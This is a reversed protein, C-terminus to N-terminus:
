VEMEYAQQLLSKAGDGTEFTPYDVGQVYMFNGITANFGTPVNYTHDTIIGEAGEGFMTDVVLFTSTEERKYLLTSEDVSECVSFAQELTDVSERAEGDFVAGLLFGKHEMWRLFNWLANRERLYEPRVKDPTSHAPAKELKFNKM